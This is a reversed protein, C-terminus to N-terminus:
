YLKKRFGDFQFGFLFCFWGSVSSLLHVCFFRMLSMFSVDTTQSLDSSSVTLIGDFM